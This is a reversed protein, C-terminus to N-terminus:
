SRMAEHSQRSLFFLQATKDQLEIVPGADFGSGTLRALAKANRVDPEVLIRRADTTGFLHDIFALVLRPTLGPVPRDGPATFVPAMFLHIGLDGPQPEYAEGVPDNFPDYSQFLAVARDDLTLLFAHHTELSDLFRYVELVQERSYDTMGWFRARDETVWGHILDVDEDPVLPIIRITSEPPFGTRHLTRRRAHVPILREAHHPM